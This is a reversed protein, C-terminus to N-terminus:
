RIIQNDRMEGILEAGAGKAVRSESGGSGCCLPFVYHKAVKRDQQAGSDEKKM